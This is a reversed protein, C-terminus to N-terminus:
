SIRNFEKLTLFYKNTDNQCFNGYLDSFRMSIESKTWSATSFTPASKKIM